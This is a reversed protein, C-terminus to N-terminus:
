PGRPILLEYPSPAQLDVFTAVAASELSARNPVFYSM